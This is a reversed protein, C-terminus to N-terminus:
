AVVWTETGGAGIVRKYLLGDAGLRIEARRAEPTIGLSLTEDDDNIISNVINGNESRIPEQYSSNGNQVVVTIPVDAIVVGAALNGELTVAGSVSENAVLGAAPIKQEAPTTPMPIGRTLPVVYEEVLVKNDFDWSYIIATGEYLSGIAVGSNGGDGTDQIFLPQAVVQSMASTPIAPSAELGASDAGSYAAGLGVFEQLTFGNPEYDSENAGTGEPPSSDWDIPFGPNVGPNPGEGGDSNLEGSTGKRNYWPARTAFFPGSVNGSRPWSAISNSLPMVLRADYFNPSPGMRANVCAMIPNNSDLIYEVNGSSYFRYYQWPTLQIGEQGEVISGDGFKLSVTSALPGNVVHIWGQDGQTGGPDYNQSNRFMYFFSFKFSLGYSLLPMPSEPNGDVCESFGYFGQTATIISGNSLGTFCIPEGLDMFEQYLFTNSNYAAGDVFVRVVNGNGLSCGQVRGTNTYGVAFTTAGPQGDGALLAQELGLTSGAAIAEVQAIDAFDVIDVPQVATDALEGQAPTAAEIIVNAPDTVDVVNGTVSQVGSSPLNDLLNKYSNTFANTDPNSEYKNKVSEATEDGSNVGSQQAIFDLIEQTVFKNVNDTDDVQDAIPLGVVPNLPDSNDVLDGTVSAVKGELLATISDNIAEIASIIADTVSSTIYGVDNILESINAGPQLASDAKNGQAATAYDSDSFDTIDGKTVEGSKLYQADNQLESVNDNSQLATDAKEGQSATAVESFNVGGPNEVTFNGTLTSNTVLSNSINITKYSGDFYVFYNSNAKIEFLTVNSPDKVIVVQDNTPSINYIFLFFDPTLSSVEPLTLELDSGVNVPNCVFIRNNLQVTIDSTVVIPKFYSVGRVSIKPNKSDDNNIAVDTEGTAPAISALYGSEEAIVLNNVLDTLLNFIKLNSQRADKATNFDNDQLLQNSEVLKEQISDLLEQKNAM